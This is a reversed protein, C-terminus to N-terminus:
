WWRKPVHIKDYPLIEPDEEPHTILRKCNVKIRTKGDARLLIVGTKRAFDTFDGASQIARTLTTKGLYIQRGPQRVEGGIYYVRQQSKVTVNLWRYYKPVYLDQIEKQLEGATKGDAKIAGIHQLTVTGDDKISEEHPPILEPGTFSIIVLEGKQFIDGKQFNAAENRPDAPAAGGGSAGLPLPEGPASFFVPDEPTAQCGAFLLGALLLGGAVM